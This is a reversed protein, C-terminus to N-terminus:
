VSTRALLRERLARLSGLSAILGDFEREVVARVPGPLALELADRYAVLAADEIRECQMLIAADDRAPADRGLSIPADTVNGARVAVGQERALARLASAARGYRRARDLLLLRPDEGGVAAAAAHFASEGESTAHILSSLGVRLDHDITATFDM